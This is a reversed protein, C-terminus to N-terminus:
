IQNFISQSAIKSSFNYIKQFLIRGPLWIKYQFWRNKWNLFNEYRTNFDRNESVSIRSEFISRSTRSRSESVLDSVIFKVECFWMKSPNSGGIKNFIKLKYVNVRFCQLPFTYFKIHSQSKKINWIKPNCWMYIKFQLIRM